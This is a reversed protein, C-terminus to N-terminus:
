GGCGGCGGGGCGGGGCSSGGSCSSFFGSSGDDGWGSGSGISGLVQDLYTVVFLGIPGLMMMQGLMSFRRMGNMTGYGFRIAGVIEFTLVALILCALPAGTVRAIVMIICCILAIVFYFSIFQPGNLQLQYIGAFVVIMACAAAIFQFESQRWVPNEKTDSNDSPDIFELIKDLHSGAYIMAPGLPVLWLLLDFNDIAAPTVLSQFVRCVVVIAYLASIAITLFRLLGESVSLLRAAILGIMCGLALLMLFIVSADPRLRADTAIAAVTLLGCIIAAIATAGLSSGSSSKIQDNLAKNKKLRQKFKSANPKPNPTDKAKQILIEKKCSPCPGRKGILEAKVLYQKGCDCAIKIRSLTATTM